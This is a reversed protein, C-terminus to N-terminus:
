NSIDTKEPLIGIIRQVLDEIKFPKSIYDIVGYEKGKSVDEKSVRRTIIVVPVECLEEKLSKLVEFGDKRPMNLDLIILDLDNDLLKAQKLAEEGDKAEYMLCGKDGLAKVILNRMFDNDEAILINSKYGKADATLSTEKVEVDKSLINRAEVLFDELSYKLSHINEHSIGKRLNGEIEIAINGLKRYGFVEASGSIQHIRALVADSKASDYNDDEFSNLFEEFFKMSSELRKIFNQVIPEIEEKFSKKLTM